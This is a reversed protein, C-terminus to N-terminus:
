TWYLVSTIIFSGLDDHLTGM